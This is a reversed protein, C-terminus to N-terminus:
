GVAQSLTLPYALSEKCKGVAGQIRNPESCASPRPPSTCFDDFVEYSLIQYRRSYAVPAAIIWDIPPGKSGTYEIVLM